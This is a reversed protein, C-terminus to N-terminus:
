SNARWDSSSTRESRSSWSNWSRIEDRSLFMSDENPTTRAAAVPCPGKDVGSSRSNSATSIASICSDSASAASSGSISACWAGCGCSSCLRRSRLAESSSLRRRPASTDTTAIVLARSRGLSTRHPPGIASWNACCQLPKRSDIALMPADSSSTAVNSSSAIASTFRLAAAASAATSAEGEVSEPRSQDSVSVSSAFTENLASRRARTASSADFGELSPEWAPQPRHPRGGLLYIALLGFVFGGARARWAVVTAVTAEQYAYFFQYVFWIGLVALASMQIVASSQRARARAASRQM